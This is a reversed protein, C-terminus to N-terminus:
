TSPKKQGEALINLRDELHTCMQTVKEAEGGIYKTEESYQALLM